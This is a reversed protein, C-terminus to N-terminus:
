AASGGTALLGAGGGPSFCGASGSCCCCCCVQPIMEAVDRDGCATLLWKNQTEAALQDFLTSNCCVKTTFNGQDHQWCLGVVSPDVHRNGWTEYDCWYSVRSPPTATTQPAEQSVNACFEVLWSGYVQNQLLASFFTANACVEVGFREADNRTCLSMVYMPILMVDRWESYHCSEAVLTDLTGETPSQPALHTCNPILAANEPNIFLFTFLGNDKCVLDKLRGGDMSWCFAVMASPVEPQVMWGEYACFISVLTEPNSTLNGCFDWMWHNNPDSLLLIMLRPNDCVKEVFLTRDNDSCLSVVGADM